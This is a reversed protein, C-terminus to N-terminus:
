QKQLELMETIKEVTEQVYLRNSEGLNVVTYGDYDAYFYNVLEAKVCAKESRKNYLTLEIWGQFM